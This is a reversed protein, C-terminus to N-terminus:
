IRQIQNNDGAIIINQSGDVNITIKICVGNKLAQIFNKDNFIRIIGNSVGDSIRSVEECRIAEWEQRKRKAEEKVSYVFLGAGLLLTFVLWKYDNLTNIFEM